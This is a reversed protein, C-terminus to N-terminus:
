RQAVGLFCFMGAARILHSFDRDPAKDELADHLLARMERLRDRMGNLEIEWAARQDDDGVVVGELQALADAQGFASALEQLPAAALLLGALLTAIRM